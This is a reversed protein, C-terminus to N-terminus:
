LPMPTRGFRVSGNHREALAQAGWPLPRARRVIKARGPSGSFPEVTSLQHNTRRCCNRSIERVMLTEMLSKM